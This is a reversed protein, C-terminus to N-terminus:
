GKYPGKYLAPLEDVTKYQDIGEPASYSNHHWYFLALENTIAERIEETPCAYMTVDGEVYTLVDFFGERDRFFIIVLPWSGLNWGHQGWLGIAEWDQEEAEGMVEYGDGLFLARDWFPDPPVQYQKYQEM